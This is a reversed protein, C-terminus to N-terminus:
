LGLSQQLRLNMQLLGRANPNDIMRRADQLEQPTMQDRFAEILLNGVVNISINALAFPPSLFANSYPTQVEYVYGKSDCLFAVDTIGDKEWNFRYVLAFDDPKNQVGVTRQYTHGRYAAGFHVYGLVTKGRNAGGVFNQAKQVAQSDQARAPAALFWLAVLAFMPLLARTSSLRFKSM